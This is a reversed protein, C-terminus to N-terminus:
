VLDNKISLYRFLVVNFTHNKFHKQDDYM